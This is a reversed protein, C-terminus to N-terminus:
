QPCQRLYARLGTLEAEAATARALLAEILDALGNASEPTMMITELPGVAPAQRLATTSREARVRLEDPTENATM